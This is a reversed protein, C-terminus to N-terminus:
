AQLMQCGVCEPKRLQLSVIGKCCLTLYVLSTFALRYCASKSQRSYANSSHATSLQVLSMTDKAAPCPLRVPSNSDARGACYAILTRKTKDDSVGYMEVTQLATVQQVWSM